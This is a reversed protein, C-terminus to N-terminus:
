STRGNQRETTLPLGDPQCDSGVVRPTRRLNIDISVLIPLRAIIRLLASISLREHRGQHIRSLTANDVDAADAAEQNTAFHRKLGEDICNMLALKVRAEFGLEPAPNPQARGKM